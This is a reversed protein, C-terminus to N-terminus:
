KGMKFCYHSFNKLVFSRLQPLVIRWNRFPHCVEYLLRELTSHLGKFKEVVELLVLLEEDIVVNGATELLNADLADSEIREVVHKKEMNM